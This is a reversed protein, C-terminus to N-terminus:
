YQEEYGSEMFDAIRLQGEKRAEEMEAALSEESAPESRPYDWGNKRLWARRALHDPMVSEVLGWFRMGHSRYRTHAIEHVVVYDLIGEPM